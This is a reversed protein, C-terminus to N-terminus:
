AGKWEGSFKFAETEDKYRSRMWTEKQLKNQWNWEKGMCVKVLRENNNNMSPSIEWIDVIQVGVERKGTFGFVRM